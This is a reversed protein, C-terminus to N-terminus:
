GCIAHFESEVKGVDLGGGFKRWWFGSREVVSVFVNLKMRVEPSKEEKDDNFLQRL